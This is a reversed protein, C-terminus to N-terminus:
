ATALEKNVTLFTEAHARAIAIAGQLITRQIKTVAGWPVVEAIRAQIHADRPMMALNNKLTGYYHMYLAEATVDSRQIVNHALMASLPIKPLDMFIVSHEGFQNFFTSVVRMMEAVQRDDILWNVNNIIQPFNFQLYMNGYDSFLGVRLILDWNNKGEVKHLSLTSLLEAKTDQQHIYNLYFGEVKASVQHLVGGQVPNLVELPALGYKALEKKLFEVMREKPQTYIDHLVVDAVPDNQTMYHIANFQEKNVANISAIANLKTSSYYLTSGDEKFLSSITGGMIPAEFGLTTELFQVIAQMPINTNEM